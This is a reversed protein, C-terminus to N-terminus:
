SEISGSCRGACAQLATLDSVPQAADGLPSKAFVAEARGLAVSVSAGNSAECLALVQTATLGAAHAAEIARLAQTFESM